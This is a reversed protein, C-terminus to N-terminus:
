KSVLIKQDKNDTLGNWHLKNWVIRCINSQYTIGIDIDNVFINENCGEEVSKYVNFHLPDVVLIDHYYYCPSLVKTMEWNAQM